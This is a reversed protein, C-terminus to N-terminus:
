EKDRKTEAVVGDLTENKAQPPFSPAYIVAEFLLELKRCIANTTIQPCGHLPFDVAASQKASARLPVSDLGVTLIM